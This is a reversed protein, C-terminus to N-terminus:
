RNRILDRILRRGPHVHDVLERELPMPERCLRSALMEAALPASVLGRSGHGATIWLGPLCAGPTAPVRTADRRLLAYDHQWREAEPIPGIWPSKDPTACRIGVRAEPARSQLRQALEPLAAALRELNHHHDAQRPSLTRDHPAFSAGISQVGNLAPPTYGEACVVCRPSAALAEDDLYFESVQGRIYQIPLWSSSIFTELHDACALIVQDFEATTGDELRLQWAASTRALASVRHARHHVGPTTMLTHCLAGPAVWGAGPYYLASNVSDALTVGALTEAQERDVRTLLAEPLGFAEISRRQRETEQGTTALQLLGCPQWLTHHPDLRELFNIAYQLATLYFRSQANVEAALRVYLAGQRNGSAGSGPPHPDFVTVQRGRRALAHATTAGALGAGIIAIRSGKKAAQPPQYWPTAARGPEIPAADASSLSLHGSLMERKRGFGPVKRCEFGAATLGRRVSGACTFTALTAHPRSATAMAEFLATQWMEPNRGPAFGDLFWADVRGDLGTLMESAEGFHLDLTVREDLLLRHVGKVPSPWQQMLRGATEALSPWVSLAQQLAASTFPHKEVSIIHLRAEPPAHAVFCHYACLVNLGSGFGTEGIVFPRDERWQEFRKVLNNHHIFVHETEERGGERSFYVDNFDIDFPAQERWELRAPTLGM